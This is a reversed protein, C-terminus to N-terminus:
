RKQLKQSKSILELYAIPVVIPWFITAVLLIMKSFQREESSLNVNQEFLDRWVKFFFTAITLYIVELFVPFIEM